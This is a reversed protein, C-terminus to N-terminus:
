SVFIAVLCTCQLTFIVGMFTSKKRKSLYTSDHSVECAFGFLVPSLSSINKSYTTNVNWNVVPHKLFFVYVCSLIVSVLYLFALDTLTRKCGTLAVYHTGGNYNKQSIPLAM